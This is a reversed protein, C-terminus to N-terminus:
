TPSPLDKRKYGRRPPRLFLRERVMEYTPSPLVKRKYGRVTPHPFLREGTGKGVTPTTPFIIRGRPHAHRIQFIKRFKILNDTGPFSQSGKM